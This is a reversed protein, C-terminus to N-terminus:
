NLFCFSNLISTLKRRIREDESGSMIKITGPDYVAASTQTLRIEVDYCRGHHFIQYVDSGLGHSLGGEGNECIKAKEGAIRGWYTKQAGLWDEFCDSQTVLEPIVSVSFAAGDINTGEYASQPYAICVIPEPHLPGSATVPLETGPCIPLYAGCSDPLWGTLLPELAENSVDADPMPKEYHPQCLVLSSPYRFVFTGDPSKFIQQSSNTQTYSTATVLLLMLLLKM